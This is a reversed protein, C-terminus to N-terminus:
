VGRSPAGSHALSGPSAPHNDKAKRTLLAVSNEVLEGQKAGNLLSNSFPVPEKEFVGGSGLRFFGHRLVAREEGGGGGGRGRGGGVWGGVGSAEKEGNLADGRVHDTAETDSHIGLSPHLYTEEVWGDVWGGVALFFFATRHAAPSEVWGGMWRISVLCLLTYFHICFANRDVWGGVYGGRELDHMTPFLPRAGEEEGGGLLFSLM